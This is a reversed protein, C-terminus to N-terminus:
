AGRGNAVALFVERVKEAELASRRGGEGRPAGGVTSSGGWGPELANMRRLFEGVDYRVFDSRKGVTYGVTGDPAVACIVGVVVGAAYLQAFGQLGEFERLGGDADLGFAPVPHLADPEPLMDDGGLYWADVMAQDAWLVELTQAHGGRHTLVKHLRSPEVVPGHADVFGVQAVVQRVKVERSRGPNRLLWLALTADADLDNLVVRFGRPDLGLDLALLVQQCTPLTVLRVCDGHHDFSYSERENDIVPGAVAGDLYITKPQMQERPYVAGYEFCVEVAEMGQQGEDM